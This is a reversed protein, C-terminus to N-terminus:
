GLGIQALVFGFVAAIVCYIAKEVVFKWRNGPEAELAEVKTSLINVSRAMSDMKEAMVAVATALKHLVEHEEELKKIRGENRFSRDDIKQLKIAIQELDM